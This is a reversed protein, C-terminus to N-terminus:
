RGGQEDEGRETKSNNKEYQKQAIEIAKKEEESLSYESQSAKIPKGYIRNEERTYLSTIVVGSDNADLIAISFSQDGGVGKFPNFRVMGIKQLSFKGEKKLNKLEQSIRELNEKLDKFQVLVEKLNEPDRKQKKFFNIM